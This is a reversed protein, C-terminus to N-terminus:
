RRGAGRARGPRAQHGAAHGAQLGLGPPDVLLEPAGRGRQALVEVQGVDAVAVLHEEVAQQGVVQLLHERDDVGRRDPLRDLPEAVLVVPGAPDEEGDVPGLVDLLRQEVVAQPGVVDVQEDDGVGLADQADAVLADAADLDRDALQGEVGRRGADVRTPRDRDDEVDAGVVEPQEAVLHVEPLPVGPDAPRPVVLEHVAEDRRRGAEEGVRHQVPLVQSGGVRVADQGGVAVPDAREVVVDLAGRRHHEGRDQGAHVDGAEVEVSWRTTMKPAPLAPMPMALRTRSRISRAPAVSASTSAGNWAMPM